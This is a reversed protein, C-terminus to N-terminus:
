YSCARGESTLPAHSVQQGTAIIAHPHYSSPTATEQFSGTNTNRGASKSALVHVDRVLTEGEKAQLGPEPETPRSPEFVSPTNEVRIKSAERIEDLPPVTFAGRKKMVWISLDFNSASEAFVGRVKVGKFLM